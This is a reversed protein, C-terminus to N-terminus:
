SQEALWNDVKLTRQHAADRDPNKAGSIPKWEKSSEMRAKIRRIVETREDGAWLGAEVAKILTVTAAQQKNPEAAIAAEMSQEIPDQSDLKGLKERQQALGDLTSRLEKSYTGFGKELTARDPTAGRVMRGYGVATKAGAGLWDLANALAEWLENLEERAQLAIDKPLKPRVGVAFLLTLDRVALFPVPVPDHWDAPTNDPGGPNVAGSEYWKGMHPTMVDAILKPRDTPIADFFVYWGAEMIKANKSESGFWTRLRTKILTEPLDTWQEFYARVLGKVAAGPLYPVSLVPHWAFGNEVPHPLGLGTAFHWDNKFQGYGGQCTKALAIVQHAHRLLDRRNGVTGQVTQIWEQKAQDSELGTADDSYRNFFREFWLGRHAGIPPRNNPFVHQDQQYLPLM